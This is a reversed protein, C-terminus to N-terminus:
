IWEKSFNPPIHPNVLYYRKLIMLGLSFYTFAFIVIVTTISQHHRSKFKLKPILKAVLFCGINVVAANLIGLPVSVMTGGFFDAAYKGCVAVDTDSWVQWFNTIGVKDICYCQYVGTAQGQDM